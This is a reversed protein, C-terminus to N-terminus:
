NNVFCELIKIYETNYLEKRYFENFKYQSNAEDWFQIDILKQILWKVNYINVRQVHLILCNM